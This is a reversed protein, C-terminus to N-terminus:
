LEFVNAYLGTNATISEAMNRAEWIDEFQLAKRGSGWTEADPSFINETVWKTEDTIKPTNIIAFM